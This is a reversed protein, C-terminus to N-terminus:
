KRSPIRSESSLFTDSTRLMLQDPALNQKAADRSSRWVQGWLHKVTPVTLLLHEAAEEPTEGRALALALQLEREGLGSLPDAPLDPPTTGCAELVSRAQALWPEAGLQAFGTFAGGLHEVAEAARGVEQLRRGYALLTRTHEFPGVVVSGHALSDRFHGDVADPSALLGRCCALAALASPRETQRAEQEFISLEREADAARGARVLAEILDRARHPSVAADCWGQELQTKRVEALHEIAADLEGCGLALLGLAPVARDLRSGAGLRSALAIAEGAHRCCDVARGQAADLWALAGSALGQDAAQGTERALSAAEALAAHAAPWHGTDLEVDALRVLAYPLLGFAGDSRADAILQALVDRARDHEGALRLGAGLYARLRPEGHLQERLEIARLLLARGKRPDGSFTLATGLMLAAAAEIPGAEALALARLGIECARAPSGARLAPIVAAALLGAAAARDSTECRAAGDLM